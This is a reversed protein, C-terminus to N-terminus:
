GRTSSAFSASIAVALFARMPEFYILSPLRDLSCNDANAAPVCPIQLRRRSPCHIKEEYCSETLSGHLFVASLLGVEELTYQSPVPEFAFACHRKHSLKRLCRRAHSDPGAYADGRSLLRRWIPIITEFHLAPYERDITCVALPLRESELRTFALKATNDTREPGLALRCSREVYGKVPM